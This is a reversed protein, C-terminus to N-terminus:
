RDCFVAFNEAETWVKQDNQAISSRINEADKSMADFDLATPAKRSKWMDGMNRLRNIDDTFVKAFVRRAFDDSGMAQRISNLAQSEQRLNEIEKANETDESHDFEPAEEESTGFM